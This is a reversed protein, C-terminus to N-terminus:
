RSPTEDPFHEDDYAELDLGCFRCVYAALPISEGCRPCPARKAGSSVDGVAPAPSRQNKMVLVLILGLLPSIVLSILFWGFASRGRADAAVAVIGAAIAWGVLVLEVALWRLWEAL